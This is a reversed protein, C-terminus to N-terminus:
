NLSAPRLGLQWGIGPIALRLRQTARRPRTKRQLIDPFARIAISNIFDSAQRANGRREAPM